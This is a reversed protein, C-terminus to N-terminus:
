GDVEHKAVSRLIFLTSKTTADATVADWMEKATKMAKIKVELRTSTTSLILYQAYYEM